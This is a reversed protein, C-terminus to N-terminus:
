LKVTASSKNEESSPCPYSILGTIECITFLVAFVVSNNDSKYTTLKNGPGWLIPSHLLLVDLRSQANVQLEWALSMRVLIIEKGLKKMCGALAAFGNSAEQTLRCLFKEPVQFKAHRRLKAPLLM